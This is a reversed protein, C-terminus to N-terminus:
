ADEAEERDQRLAEVCLRGVFPLPNKGLYPFRVIANGTKKDALSVWWVRPLIQRKRYLIHWADEVEEIEPM